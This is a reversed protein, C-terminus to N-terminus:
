ADRTVCVLMLKRDGRIGLEPHVGAARRKRGVPVPARHRSAGLAEM